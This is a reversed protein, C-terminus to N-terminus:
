FRADYVQKLQPDNEQAKINTIMELLSDDFAKFTTTSSPNEEMKQALISHIGYIANMAAFRRWISGDKLAISKLKEAVNQMQPVEGASALGAYNSFFTIADYNDMKDLNEEFFALNKLDSSQAYKDSIALRAAMKVSGAVDNKIIREFLTTFDGGEVISLQEV